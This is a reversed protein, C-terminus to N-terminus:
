GIYCLFRSLGKVGSNSHKVDHTKDVLSEQHRQKADRILVGSLRWGKQTQAGFVTLHVPLDLCPNPPGSYDRSLNCVNCVTCGSDQSLWRTFFRKYVPTSGPSLEEHLCLPSGSREGDLCLFLSTKFIQVFNSDVEFINIKCIQM